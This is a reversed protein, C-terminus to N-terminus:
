SKVKPRGHSGTSTAKPKTGSKGHLERILARVDASLCEIQKQLADLSDEAAPVLGRPQGGAVRIGVQRWADVVAQQEDIGFLQAAKAATTEAFEQFETTSTSAKLSEYWIQGPAEWARGGINVATLYFAKNPIGSNIHVGGNDGRATDPLVVFDNMHGPQPDQGMLPNDYAHGPDKMSRLADAAVGPTFIEPGILWRATEVTQSQSWQEILSGFVDSASENLAGSQNHYALGASNETVGHALEHGIVSLSQTFDAFMEGDGDGFVMHRGDWFANNFRDGYHVYADLRMGMGDISDRDFVENFFRRTTGLGDFARNVADDASLASTETRKLDANTLSEHHATDFITRRGKTSTGFGAAVATMMSREGRMEASAVLTRIAADRVVPDDCQVLRDLLHPPMICNFGRHECM